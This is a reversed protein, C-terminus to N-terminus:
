GRKVLHTSHHLLSPNSTRTFFYCSYTEIKRVFAYNSLSAYIQMLYSLHADIHMSTCLNAYTQLLAHAGIKKEEAKNLARCLTAYHQM